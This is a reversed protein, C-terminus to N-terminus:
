YLNIDCVWGNVVVTANNPSSIKFKGPNDLTNSDGIYIFNAFVAPYTGATKYQKQAVSLSYVNAGIALEIQINVEQNAATTTINLDIRYHIVSGLNLESFDFANTSSDWVDNVGSPPYTKNTFSGLGDNTLYIFGGGGTVSIPTIATAADNYDLFGSKKLYLETFNNNAKVMSARFNDGTGDNAVTGVGIIEKAM